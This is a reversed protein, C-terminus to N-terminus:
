HHISIFRLCGSFSAAIRCSQRQQVTFVISTIHYFGSKIAIQPHLRLTTKAPCSDTAPDAQLPWASYGPLCVFPYATCVSVSDNGAVQDPCDSGPCAGVTIMRLVTMYVTSNSYHEPLGENQNFIMHLYNVNDDFIVKEVVKNNGLTLKYVEEVMM